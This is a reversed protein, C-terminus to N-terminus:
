DNELEERVEDIIQYGYFEKVIDIEQLDEYVEREKSKQLYDIGIEVSQFLMFLVLPIYVAAEVTYSAKYKKM